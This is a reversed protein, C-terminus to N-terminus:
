GVAAALFAASSAVGAIWRVHNWGRWGSQFRRWTDEAGPALADVKALANNRPVHALITVGIVGVTYLAAGALIWPEGSRAIALTIALAATGFLETMFAPRLAAVNISQMARIGEPPTLRGLAPMVFSSFAFFVGGAVGSSVVSLLTAAALYDFM